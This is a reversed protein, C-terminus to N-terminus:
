TRGNLGLFDVASVPDGNGYDYLNIGGALGIPDQQTYRGTEPDYYRHCNYHLGTEEDHYQGPARLNYAIASVPDVTALGCVTYAAKWAIGGAADAAVVPRNAWNYHVTHNAPEGDPKVDCIMVPSHDESAAYFYLRWTGDPFIERSLRYGEWFFRTELGGVRKAVRRRIADYEYEAIREGDLDVSVLQDSSDYEYRFIKGTRTEKTLRGRSDYEFRRVGWATLRNGKGYSTEPSKWPMRNGGADYWFREGGTKENEPGIREFRGCPDYEFVFTGKRGKSRVPRGMIDYEFRRDIYISGDAQREAEKKRIWNPDVVIYDEFRDERSTELLHRAVRGDEGYEFTEALTGGLWREVIRSGDHYWSYEGGGPVAIRVKGDDERWSLRYEPGEDFATRLLRGPMTM